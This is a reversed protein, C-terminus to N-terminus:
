PLGIRLQFFQGGAMTNSVTFGGVEGHNNTFATAIPTLAGASPDTGALLSYIRGGTWPRFSLDIQGAPSSSPQITFELLSSANTPVTGAVYEFQNNQRDGDPDAFAMAEANDDGFYHRQWDNPLGDWAYAGPEYYASLGNNYALMAEGTWVAEGREAYSPAGNTTGGVWTDTAPNYRGGDRFGKSRDIGGWVIMAEGTWVALHLDRATPAQNTSIPSWTGNVPNFRGGTNLSTRGGYTKGNYGGWVVMESSNWIASCDARPEPAGPVISTIWTDTAPNYRGLDAPYINKFDYSGSVTLYYGGWVIMEQGTWVATLSEM